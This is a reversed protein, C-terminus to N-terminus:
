GGPQFPHSREQHVLDRCGNETVVFSREMQLSGVGPLFMSSELNFVMNEEIPVDSAIDICEDSIRM